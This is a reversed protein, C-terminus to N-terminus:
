ARGASGTAYGQFEGLAWGIELLFVLPLCALFRGVDRRRAIRGQLLRLTLLFPLLPSGIALLARRVAGAGEVRAAAYARGWVVRERMAPGFRLGWRRQEVAAGRTLVIEFGSSLLAEHVVTERYGEKWADRVQELAERRYAINSDSVYRAPGEELPNQYRGFDCFFVAWNLTEPRGNEIAGGIAAADVKQHLAIM